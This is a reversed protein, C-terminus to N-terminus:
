PMLSYRAAFAVLVDGKWVGMLAVAAVPTNPHEVLRWDEPAMGRDFAEAILRGFDSCPRSADAFDGVSGAYGRIPLDLVELAPTQPHTRRLSTANRALTPGSTATM